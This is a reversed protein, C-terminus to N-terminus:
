KDIEYKIIDGNSADIEYDYEKNNYYFEIDYKGIGDDLEYEAKIFSVQNGELNSYKLAINKAEELTIKSNSDSNTQQQISYNEIDYDYEIISGNSANIEYDYEQNNYNFEIDYKGIGDDLEYKAKIFSVQSGELNSHKLAIKKAEELTIESSNNTKNYDVNGCSTFFTSLSIISTLILIKIM